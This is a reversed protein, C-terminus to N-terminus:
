IFSKSVPWPPSFASLGPCRGSSDVNPFPLFFVATQSLLKTPTQYFFDLVNALAAVAETGTCVPIGNEANCIFFDGDGKHGTYRVERAFRGAYLLCSDRGLAAM